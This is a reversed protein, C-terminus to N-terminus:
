RPKVYTEHSVSKGMFPTDVLRNLSGQQMKQVCTKKMMAEHEKIFEPMDEGKTFTQRYTTKDQM